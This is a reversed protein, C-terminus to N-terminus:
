SSDSKADGHLAAAMLARFLPGHNPVKLHLLEHVIAETQLAEPQSLLASDFTLRGSQSCSAWKRRMGTVRVERPAVELRGAWRRVHDKFDEIETLNELASENSDNQAHRLDKKM